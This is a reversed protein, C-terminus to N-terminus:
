EHGLPGRDYTWDIPGRAATLAERRLRTRAEDVAGGAIVVGYAEDAQERSVKQDIVDALVLAPDRTLPDGHGGGGTTWVELRDGPELRLEAKSPFHEVSGDARVIRSKAM